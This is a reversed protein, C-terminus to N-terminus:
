LNPTVSTVPYSDDSFNTVAETVESSTVGVKRFWMKMLKGQNRAPKSYFGLKVLCSATRKGYPGNMKENQVGILKMAEGLTIRNLLLLHPYLIEEWVDQERRDEQLQKTEEVPVLYGEDGDKFNHVAEAFLQDRDRAIADIDAQGCKIPWFRRGGSQDKIWETENTTGVLVCQRPHDIAIRGFKERYRDVKKTIIQKIRSQDSRSFSNLEAIEVLMKGQLQREFDESDAAIGVEAYWEGGITQFTKTKGIGQDGELVVMHDCQCGPYMIRKVMSVWFNNGFAKNSGTPEAQIYNIFFDAIRQKGDWVLSHMWDKVIHRRNKRSYFTVGDLVQLATAKFMGISDQLFIMLENTDHDTWQRYANGFDTMAIQYFDDWWIHGKFDEHRSLFRVVNAANCVPKGNPAELGLRQILIQQSESPKPKEIVINNQIVLTKIDVYVTQKCWANFVDPMMDRADAADWGDPKGTVDLIKIANETTHPALLASIGQMAEIGPKDADPWMAAKRGYIPQWDTKQWSKAGGAWTVVVFSPAIARAAEACKEGEVILVPADPRQKLLDLGYLPRPDPFKAKWKGDILRWPIFQKGDGVNYRAVIFENNYAWTQIPKGFEKHSFDFEQRGGLRKFAEGQSIGNIKAYLDIMDGFKDDSAFDSGTGKKINYKLSDGKGGAISACQYENGAFVGGPLWEPLLTRAQTLLEAALSKFNM